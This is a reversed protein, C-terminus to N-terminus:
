KRPCIQRNNLLMLLDLDRAYYTTDDLIQDNTEYGRHYVASKVRQNKTRTFVFKTSFPLSDFAFLHDETCGDMQSFKIILNSFNVRQKRTEWKIKASEPSKYHLFVIEVDDIKGIPVNTQNREKLIGWYKSKEASIVEIELSLYYELRKLFRIYEEAFFYLGVTPSSYQLGFRQYVKGGWCNNSIISFDRNNLKRRWIPAFLKRMSDKFYNFVESFFHISM